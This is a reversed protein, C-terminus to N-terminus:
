SSIQWPEEEAHVIRSFCAQYVSGDRPAGIPTIFMEIRGLATHLFAYTGHTLPADSSATFHLAFQELEPSVSSETVDRLRLRHGTEAVIFVSGVHPRFRAAGDETPASKPPASAAPASGRDGAISWRPLWGGILASSCARLFSGRSVIV